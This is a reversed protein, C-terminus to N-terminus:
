RGGVRMTFAGHEDGDANLYQQYSTLVTWNHRVKMHFLFDRRYDEHQCISPDFKEAMIRGDPRIVQVLASMAPCDELESNDGASEVTVRRLVRGTGDAQRRSAATMCVYVDSRPRDPDCRFRLLTASAPVATIITLVTAAILAAVAGSLVRM